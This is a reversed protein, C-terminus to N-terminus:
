IVIFNYLYQMIRSNETKSKVSKLFSCIVAHIVSNFLLPFCICYSLSYLVLFISFFDAKCHLIILVFSSFAYRIWSLFEEMPVLNSLISSTFTVWDIVLNGSAMRSMCVRKLPVVMGDLSSKVKAKMVSRIM